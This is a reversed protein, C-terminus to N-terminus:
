CDIEVKIIFAGENDKFWDPRFRGLRDYADDNVTFFLQGEQASTFSKKQGVKFWNGDGIKACLAMFPSDTSGLPRRRKANWSWIRGDPGTWGYAADYSNRCGNVKGSAIMIVKQGKKVQLTSNTVPKDAPVSVRWTGDPNKSVDAAPTLFVKAQRNRTIKGSKTTPNRIWEAIEKDWSPGKESVAQTSLPFVFGLTNWILVVSAFFLAFRQFGRGKFGWVYIMLVIILSSLAVLPLARPNRWVPFVSLYFVIILEWLLIASVLKLYREGFQMANSSITRVRFNIIEWLVGILLSLGLYVPQIMLIGLLLATILGTLATIWTVKFALDLGVALLPLCLIITIIVRLGLWIREARPQLWTILNNTEQGIALWLAPLFITFFNIITQM